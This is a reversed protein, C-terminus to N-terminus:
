KSSLNDFEQKYNYLDTGQTIIDDRFNIYYRLLRKIVPEEFDDLIADNFINTHIVQCVEDWREETISNRCEKWANRWHSTGIGVGKSDLWKFFFRYLIEVQITNPVGQITALYLAYRGM